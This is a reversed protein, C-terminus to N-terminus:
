GRQVKNGRLASRQVGVLGCGFEEVKGASAMSGDQVEAAHMEGRSASAMVGWMGRQM